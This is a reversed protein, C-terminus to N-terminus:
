ASGGGPDDPRITAEAGRACSCPRDDREPIDGETLIDSVWVTVMGLLRRRIGARTGNDLVSARGSHRKVVGASAPSEGANGYLGAQDHPSSWSPELRRYM